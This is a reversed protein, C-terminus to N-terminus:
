ERKRKKYEESFLRKAEMETAQKRQGSVLAISTGTQDSVLKDVMQELFNLSAMLMINKEKLFGIEKGADAKSVTIYESEPEQLTNSKSINQYLLTLANLLKSNGGKSLAQDIYKDAYNLEKEVKRRDLGLKKLSVLLKEIDKKFEM